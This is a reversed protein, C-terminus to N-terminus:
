VEGHKVRGQQGSGGRGWGTPGRGDEGEQAQQQEDREEGNERSSGVGGLRPIAAADCDTKRVAVRGEFCFVQAQHRSRPFDFPLAVPVTM